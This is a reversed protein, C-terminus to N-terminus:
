DVRAIQVWEPAAYQEQACVWWTRADERVVMLIALAYQYRLVEFVERATGSPQYGSWGGHRNYLKWM